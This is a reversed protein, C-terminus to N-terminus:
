GRSVHTTWRETFNSSIEELSDRIKHDACHKSTSEVCTLGEEVKTARRNVFVWDTSLIDKYRSTM